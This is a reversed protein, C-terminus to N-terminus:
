LALGAHTHTNIHTHTRTHTHTYTHTYTRTHTHTQACTRTHLLSTVPSHPLLPLLHPHPPLPLLPPHVKAKAQIVLFDKYTVETGRNEEKRMNILEVLVANLRGETEMKETITARDTGYMETYMILQKGGITRYYEIIQNLTLIGRGEGHEDDIEDFLEKWQRKQKLNTNVFLDRRTDDYVLRYVVDERILHRNEETFDLGDDGLQLNNIYFPNDRPDTKAVVNGYEDYGVIDGEIRVAKVHPQLGVWEVGATKCKSLMVHKLRAAKLPGTRFDHTMTLLGEPTYQPELPPKKKANYIEMFASGSPAAGGHYKGTRIVSPPPAAQKAKARESKNQPSMSEDQDDGPYSVNNFDCVITITPFLLRRKKDDLKRQKELEKEQRKFGAVPGLSRSTASPSTASPATSPRGPTARASQTPSPRLSKVTKNFSTDGAEDWADPAGLKNKLGGGKSKIHAPTLARSNLKSLSQTGQSTHPRQEGLYKRSRERALTMTNTAKAMSEQSESTDKRKRLYWGRLEGLTVVWTRYEQPPIRRRQVRELDKVFYGEIERIAAVRGVCESLRNMVLGLPVPVNLEFEEQRSIDRQNNRTEKANLDIRVADAIRKVVNYVGMRVFENCFEVMFVLREGRVDAKQFFTEVYQLAVLRHVNVQMLLNYLTKRDVKGEFTTDQAKFNRM